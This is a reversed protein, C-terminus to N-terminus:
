PRPIPQKGLECGPLLHSSPYASPAQAHAQAPPKLTRTGTNPHVAPPPTTQPSPTKKSHKGQECVPLLHSTPYASPADAQAPPELTHSHPHVARPSAIQPSPTKKSPPTRRPSPATQICPPRQLYRTTSSTSSWPPITHLSFM